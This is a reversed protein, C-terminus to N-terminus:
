QGEEYAQMGRITPLVAALSDCLAQTRRWDTSDELDLMQKTICSFDLVNIEGNYVKSDLRELALNELDNTNSADMNLIEERTVTIPNSVRYTVKQYIREERAFYARTDVSIDRPAIIHDPETEPPPATETQATSSNPLGERTDARHEPRNRVRRAAKKVVGLPGLQLRNLCGPKIETGRLLLPPNDEWYKDLKEVTDIDNPIRESIAREILAKIVPSLGNRELLVKLKPHAVKSFIFPKDLEKKLDERSNIWNQKYRVRTQPDISECCSCKNYAETSPPVRTECYLCGICTRHRQKKEADEKTTSANIITDAM